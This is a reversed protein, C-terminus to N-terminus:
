SNIKKFFLKKAMDNDLFLLALSFLSFSIAQSAQFSMIINDNQSIFHRLIEKHNMKFRFVEIFRKLAITLNIMENPIVHSQESHPYPSM